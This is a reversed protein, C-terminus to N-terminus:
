NMEEIVIEFKERKEEFLNMYFATVQELVADKDKGSVPMISIHGKYKIKAIFRKM